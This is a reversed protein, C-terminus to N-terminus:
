LFFIVVFKFSVLAYVSVLAYFLQKTTQQIDFLKMINMNCFDESIAQYVALLSSKNKKKIELVIKAKNHHKLNNKIGWM